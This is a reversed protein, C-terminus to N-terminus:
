GGGRQYHKDFINLFMEVERDSYAFFRFIVPTVPLRLMGLRRESERHLEIEVRKGYDHIVILSGDIIRYKRKGVASPLNRFFDRHHCGMRRSM